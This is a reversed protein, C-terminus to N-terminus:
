ITRVSFDRPDGEVSVPLDLISVRISKRTCSIACRTDPKHTGPPTHAVVGKLTDSLIVRLLGKYMKVRVDSHNLDVRIEKILTSIKTIMVPISPLYNM